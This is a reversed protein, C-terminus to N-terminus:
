SLRWLPSRDECRQLAARASLGPAVVADPAVDVLPTLAFRRHLLRPHPLELAPLSLRAGQYWLLDIDICRPAYRPGRRRGQRRELALVEALLRWPALDTEILLAANHFRGGMAGGWPGSLYLPSRRVLQTQPLARCGQVARTIAHAGDLNSGLGLAARSM